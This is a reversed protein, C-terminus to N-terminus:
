RKSPPYFLAMRNSSNGSVRGAPLTQYLPTPSTWFPHFHTVLERFWGNMHARCLASSVLGTFSTESVLISDFLNARGGKMVEVSVGSCAM